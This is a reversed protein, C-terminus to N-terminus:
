IVSRQRPRRLDPSLSLSTSHTHTDTHTPTHTHSLSACKELEREMMAIKKEMVRMEKEAIGKETLLQSKEMNLQKIRAEDKEHLRTRRDMEKQLSETEKQSKKCHAEIQKLQKAEEPDSGLISNGSLTGRRSVATATSSLSKRREPIGPAVSNRKSDSDDFDAISRRNQHLQLILDQNEARLRSAESRLDALENEQIELKKRLIKEDKKSSSSLSSSSSSSLQSRLSENERELASVREREVKLEEEGREREERREEERREREGELKEIDELLAAMEGELERVVVESEEKERERERKREQEQERENAREGREREREREIEKLRHLANEKEKEFLVRERELESLNLTVDKLKRTQSELQSRLDEIVEDSSDDM